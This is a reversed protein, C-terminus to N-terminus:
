AGDTWKLTRFSFMYSINLFMPVFFSSTNYWDQLNQKINASDRM